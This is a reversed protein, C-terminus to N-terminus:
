LVGAPSRKVVNNGPLPMGPQNRVVVRWRNLGAEMSLANSHVLAPGQSPDNAPPEVIWETQKRSIKSELELFLDAPVDWQPRMRELFFGLRNYVAAVQCQQAYSLMREFSPIRGATISLRILEHLPPCHAPRRLCDILTKEFDTLRVEFTCTGDNLTRSEIGGSSTETNQCWFYHIGEFDFSNFKTQSIVFVTGGPKHTEAAHTKLASGYALYSSPTLKAAIALPSVPPLAGHELPRGLRYLGQRVPFIYGRGALESLRKRLTNGTTQLKDRAEEITFVQGHAFSDFIRPLKM